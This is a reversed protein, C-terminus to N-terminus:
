LHNIIILEQQAHSTEDNHSVNLSPSNTLIKNSKKLNDGWWLPQLNTFHYLKKLDDETKASSLPVIHDIHWGYYGYNDWSMGDKFKNEIYLLFENFECGLLDFTKPNEYKKNMLENVRSRLSNKLKNKPSSNYNRIYEKRHNRNEEVWNRFYNPNKEKYLRCRNKNIEPNLDRKIKQKSSIEKRNLEYHNTSSKNMCIKCHSRYKLKNKFSIYFECVEKEEKCKSCIKKEM